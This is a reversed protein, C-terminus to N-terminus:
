ALGGDTRGLTVPTPAAVTTAADDQPAAATAELETAPLFPSHRTLPSILEHSSNSGIVFDGEMLEDRSDGAFRIGIDCLGLPDNTITFTTPPQH